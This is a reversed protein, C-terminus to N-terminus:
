YTEGNRFIASQYCHHLLKGARNSHYVVRRLQLKGMERHNSCNYVGM